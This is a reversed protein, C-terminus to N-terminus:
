ERDGQKTARICIWSRWVGNIKKYFSLSQFSNHYPSYAFFVMAITNNRIFLPNTIAIIANSNNQKLFPLAEEVPIVQYPKLGDKGWIFSDIQKRFEITLYDREKVTLHISDPNIKTKQDYIIGKNQDLKRTFFIKM